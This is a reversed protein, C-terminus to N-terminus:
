EIGHDASSVPGSGQDIRQPVAPMSPVSSSMAPSQGAPASAATAQPATGTPGSFNIPEQGELMGPTVVYDGGLSSRWVTNAVQTNGATIAWAGGGVIGGLIAYVLKAPIYPINALVSLAGFGAGKWNVGGGEDPQPVQTQAGSESAPALTQALIPAPAALLLALALAILSLEIRKGFMM